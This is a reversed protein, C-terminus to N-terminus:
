ASRNQLVKRFRATVGAAPRNRGGLLPNPPTAPGNLRLRKVSPAYRPLNFNM